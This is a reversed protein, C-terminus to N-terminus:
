SAGGSSGPAVTPTMTTEVLEDMPGEAPAVPELGEPAVGAELPIDEGSPAGDPDEHMWRRFVILAGAALTISLILNGYAAGIVGFRGTLIVTATVAIGTGVVRVFWLSRARRAAKLVQQAGFGLTIASVSLAVVRAPGAYAEFESGYITSLLWPAFLLVLAAYSWVAAGVGLTLRRALRVAAARGERELMRTAEPLGFNVGAHFLISTPGILAIGARLGGFEVTGVRSAVYLFSAQEAAQGTGVEALLWKGVSWGNTFGAAVNRLRPLVRFQAVGLLAGAAAGLGWAGAAAAGTRWGSQTFVVLLVMQVVMFVGDNLAAMEPRRLKFSISRWADQIFLFPLSAGVVILPGGISPSDAAVFALGVAAILGGLALGLALEAALAARVVVSRAPARQHLIVLPELILSRQVLVVVLWVTYALMYGGFAEAGALRAVLVGGLFNSASSIAQDLVVFAVRRRSSGEVHGDQGSEMEGGQTLLGVM